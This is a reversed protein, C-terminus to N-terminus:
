DLIKLNKPMIRGIKYTATDIIRIEIGKKKAINICMQTGSCLADKMKVAILFDSKDVMYQNRQRYCNKTYYDNLIIVSDAKKSIWDFHVKQISNYNKDMGRYPLILNLKAKIGIEDRLYIIMLGALEDIGTQGGVYFETVGLRILREIEEKIINELKEHEKSIVTYPMKSERHGTFCASLPKM